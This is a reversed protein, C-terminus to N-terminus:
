KRQRSVNGRTAEWATIVKDVAGASLDGDLRIDLRANKLWPAVLDEFERDSLKDIQPAKNKRVLPELEGPALRAIAILLKGSVPSGQSEQRAKAWEKQRSQVQKVRRDIRYSVEMEKGYAAFAIAGPFLAKDRASLALSDLTSVKGATVDNTMEVVTRDLVKIVSVLISWQARTKPMAQSLPPLQTPLAIYWKDREMRMPLGVVPIIPEGDLMIAATDDATKITTIRASNTELWSYPDAFLRNVLELAQDSQVQPGGGPGRIGAGGPSVQVSTPGRRGPGAQQILSLLSDPKGAAAADAARQKMAEFEKPFKAAAAKSLQQMHKFLEGLKNLAIRMEPTDAYILDGLRHAQDNRVMELASQIVADPSSQDYPRDRRIAPVIVALFVLLGVSLPGILWWIAQSKRQTPM